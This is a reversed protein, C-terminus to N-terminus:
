SSHVFIYNFFYSFNFNNLASKNISQSLGQNQWISELSLILQVYRLLFPYTLNGYLKVFTKYGSSFYQYLLHKLYM